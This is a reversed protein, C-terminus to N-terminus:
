QKESLTISKVLEMKGDKMVFVGFNPRPDGKNDFDLISSAGEYDIDKGERLLNAGEEFSFVREGPPGAIDRIHKAIEVGTDCKCSEIALAVTILMDYAQVAYTNNELSEGTSEKYRAAISQYASSEFDPVTNVAMVGEVVEAGLNNALDENIAFTQGLWKQDTEGTEYWEKLVQTIDPTYGTIVIVDGNESLAQNIEAAYSSQELNYVITRKVEGGNQSYFDIFGTIDGLASPTNNAMAVASKWNQDLVARAMAEGFLGGPAELRWVLDNDDLESIKPSGSTNMEIVGAEIALPAVALTNGSAWTGLIAVVRNVDILKQAGRVAADPDTQSDEVFLQLKRGAPGGASNVEEVALEITKAMGPGYFAGAGTLPTLAGIPISGGPEAEEPASPACAGLTVVIVIMISVLFTIHSKM